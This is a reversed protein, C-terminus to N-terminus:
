DRGKPLIGFGEGRKEVGMISTAQPIFVLPSADWGTSTM